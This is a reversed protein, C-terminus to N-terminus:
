ALPLPTRPLIQALLVLKKRLGPTTMQVRDETPYSVPDGPVEAWRQRGPRPIVIVTEEDKM